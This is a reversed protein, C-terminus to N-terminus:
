CWICYLVVRNSAFMAFVPRVMMLSIECIIFILVAYFCFILSPFEAFSSVYEYVQVAYDVDRLFKIFVDFDSDHFRSM